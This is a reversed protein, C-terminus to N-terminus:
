DLGDLHVLVRDFRISIGLAQLAALLKMFCTYLFHPCLALSLSPAPLKRRM